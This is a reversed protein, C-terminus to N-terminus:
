LYAIMRGAGLVVVWAFLSTTATARAATSMSDHVLLHFAAINLLGLAIAALKLLFAPNVGLASAEPALLVLGTPIQIALGCAAVPIANTGIVPAAEAHRRILTLDFVAIAGVLLAAGLVHLVNSVTYLWASHRALHGLTSGQLVALWGEYVDGM